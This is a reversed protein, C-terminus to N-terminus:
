EAAAAALAKLNDLSTERPVQDGSALIFATRGAEEICKRAESYVAEPTGRSLTDFTNVNGKLCVKAGFRRRVDALTVDGGPARELPEIMRVGAGVLMDLAASCRGCMHVATAVGHSGAIRVARELFVLNYRRYIDPSIVSMSTVSGGLMLLDPKQFRCVVEITELAWERYADLTKVLWPEGDALELVGDVLLPRRGYLWWAAPVPIESKVVASEGVTGDRWTGYEPDLTKAWPDTHTLLVREADRKPDAILPHEVWPSTDRPYNTLVTLDGKKTHIRDEVRWYEATKEIVHTERPPDDPGNIFAPKSIIPDFGFYKAIELQMRWVPPDRVFLVEWFPKGSWRAPFMAAMDPSVPIRDPTGLGIATM